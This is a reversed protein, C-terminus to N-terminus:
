FSLHYGGRYRVPGSVIQNPPASGRIPPPTFSVGSGGPRRRALRRRSLKANLNQTSNPPM